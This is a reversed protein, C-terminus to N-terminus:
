DRLVLSTQNKLFYDKFGITENYIQEENVHFLRSLAESQAQLKSTMRMVPKFDAERLLDLVLNPKVKIPLSKM